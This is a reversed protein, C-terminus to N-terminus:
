TLGRLTRFAAHRTALLAIAAAVIPLIFPLVWGFGSFGLGTLLGGTEGAGPLAAIGLTALAAGALAGSAARLTFRQVFADAIYHDRAGVLRLVRIVQANTALSANAALTIMGAMAAGILALSLFGLLRLRLAAEAMPRRWRSHDDLVADPADAALRQRLGEADFGGHPTATVEILTPMPLAGAPLGTGLWPEILKRTEQPTMARSSAVGPTTALLDLVVQTEAANRGGPASIRITATNALAAEWRNAVRGAALSLALAFVALFTMAAATSTTLWASSKSPPVVRSPAWTTSDGFKNWAIM